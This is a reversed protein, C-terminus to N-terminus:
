PCSCTAGSAPVANPTDKTTPSSWQCVPNGSEYLMWTPDHYYTGNVDAGLGMGTYNNCNPDWDFSPGNGAGDFQAFAGSAMTGVQVYGGAPIVVSTTFQITCLEASSAVGTGSSSFTITAAVNGQSVGGSNYVTTRWSDGGWDVTTDGANFWGEISLTNINVNTTANNNVINFLVQPFQGTCPNSNNIAFTLDLHDTTTCTISGPTPTPTPTNAVPTYTATSVQTFTLTPGSAPPCSCTSGGAPVGTNPDTNTDNLWECVPGGNELLMWTPDHHFVGNVYAGAGLTTYNSCTPDWDFSPSNGAGDFQAFAGSALTGMVVYGGPPIMVSSTFQITCLEAKGGTLGSSSFTITAAAQGLNNGLSDYVTSRWSDGGWDVTTDGSNFWGEISMTNVNVPNSVNNNYLNFLIQPFQGTCPNSNNVAFTLDMHDEPSCGAGSPTPSHTPSATHTQFLTPTPTTTPSGASVVPCSCTSGGAPVGTFPDSSAPSNWECVPGGSEYLMWSPDHVYTGNTYTGYGLGTYNSCSPDWEFTPSNGAGDFQAFAGSAMTGVAVWGGAPIMVSTTFQITCLEAKNAAALGSSSFTITAAANGQSVGTSNYVTTRWSDGGWDITNDGSNFWGEITLTNINVANATNYNQINFLIQPFQGTCPNSNNIAFTLDLHDETACAAPAPTFTHTPTATKPPTPTFSFTPLETETPTDTPSCAPCPTSDPTATAAPHFTPVAFLPSKPDHSNSRTPSDLWFPFAHAMVVLVSLVLVAIFMKASAQM